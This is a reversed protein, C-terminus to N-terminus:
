AFALTPTGQWSFIPPAGRSPDTPPDTVTLTGLAQARGSHFKQVPGPRVYVMWEPENRDFEESTGQAVVGDQSIRVTVIVKNAGQPGDADNWELPGCVELWRGASKLELDNDFRPKM